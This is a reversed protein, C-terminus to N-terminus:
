FISRTDYEAWVSLNPLYSLPLGMAYHNVHQLVFNYYSIEFELQAM